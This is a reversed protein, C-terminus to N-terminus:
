REAYKDLRKFSAWLVRGVQTLSDASCYQLVDQHTHWHKDQYDILLISPIKAKQFPTHDDVIWPGMANTKFTPLQLHSAERWVLQTLSRAHTFSSREPKFQTGIRGVMDIIFVAIPNKNPYFSQINKMFYESGKCYNQSGPRGFEEGDFLILDIGINKLPDKQLQLALEFIVALGSTGDNAGTIPQNRLAEKQDEEAWLRTDWHTGLIIRKERQPHLRAIINHLTYKKHSVPELAELAQLQVNVGTQQLQNKMKQIVQPRKKAGYYRHGFQTYEKIFQLARKGDFPLKGFEKHPKLSHPQIQLEQAHIVNITFYILCTILNLKYM